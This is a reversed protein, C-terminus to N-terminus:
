KHRKNFIRRLIYVRCLGVTTFYLAILLNEGMTTQINFVPFIIMQSLVAVLFGVFINVVAEILSQKKTQM